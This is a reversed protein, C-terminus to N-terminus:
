DNERFMRVWELIGRAQMVRLDVDMEPPLLPTLDLALLAYSEALELDGFFLQRRGDELCAEVQALRSLALAKEPIKHEGLERATERLLRQSDAHDPNMRLIRRCQVMCTPYDGAFFLWEALEYATAVPDPTPAPPPAATSCGAWLLWGCVIAPSRSM